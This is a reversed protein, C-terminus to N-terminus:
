RAIRALQEEFAVCQDKCPVAAHCPSGDACYRHFITTVKKQKGRVKVSPAPPKKKTDFINTM